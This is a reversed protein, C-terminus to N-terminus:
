KRHDEKWLYIFIGGAIVLTIAMNIFVMLFSNKTSDPNILSYLFAVLYGIGFLFAVLQTFQSWRRRSPDSRLNPNDLEAKKLRIFMYAFIPFCVILVTVLFASTPDSQGYDYTDGVKDFLDYVFIHALAGVAFASILMSIFMIAYEFGRVSLNQVVAIPEHNKPKAHARSEVLSPPPPVILGDGLVDNADRENWGADILKQKIYKDELGRERAKAIFKDVESEM